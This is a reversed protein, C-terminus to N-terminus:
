LAFFRLTTEGIRILGGNELHENGRLTHGNLLVPNANGGDRIVFGGREGYNVITAHSERSIFSDGFALRVEQNDGRGIRNVDDMLAFSRGRGPGQVVVLRGLPAEAEPPEATKRYDWNQENNEPEAAFKFGLFRTKVRNPNKENQEDTQGVGDLGRLNKAVRDSVKNIQSVRGSVRRVGLMIVGM